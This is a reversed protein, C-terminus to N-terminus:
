GPEIEMIQNVSPSWNELYLTQINGASIDLSLVAIMPSYQYFEDYLDSGLQIEKSINVVSSIYIQQM